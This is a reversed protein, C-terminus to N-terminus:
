WEIIELYCEPADDHEMYYAVGDINVTSIGNKVITGDAYEIEVSVSNSGPALVNDAKEGITFSGLWTTIEAINESPVEFGKGDSSLTYFTIRTINETKFVQTGKYVMQNKNEESINNEQNVCGAMALLGVLLLILAILKKM